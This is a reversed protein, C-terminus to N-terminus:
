PIIGMNTGTSSANAGPSGSALAFGAYSTPHAGGVFIPTGTISGAGARGSNLNHDDTVGGGAVSLEGDVWVNDRVINGSANGDIRVSSGGRFTNHQILWGQASAGAIAWPFIGTTDFVNHTIVMGSGGGNFDEVGGTGDGNDHFYNHDIVINTVGLLQIPDAHERYNGQIINTFENGRIVVGNAGDILQIGDSSHTAGGGSFYNNSIIIGQDGQAQFGRVSIRGEWLAAAINNFTSSDILWHLDTGRARLSIADTFEIHDFTMWRSAPDGDVQDVDIGEISLHGGLGTFHLHSSSNIILGTISATAGPAPRVVVDASKTVGDLRSGAYTGPELCIVTGGSANTIAAVLGGQITLDCPQASGADRGSGADPTPASGADRGADPALAADAAGASGADAAAAADETGADVPTDGDLSGGDRRRGGDPRMRGADIPTDGGDPAISADLAPADPAAADEGSTLGADLPRGAEPASSDLPIAAADGDTAAVGGGCGMSGASLLLLLPLRRLKMSQSAAFAMGVM